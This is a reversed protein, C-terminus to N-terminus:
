KNHDNSANLCSLYVFIDRGMSRGRRRARFLAMFLARSKEKDRLTDRRPQIYRRGDAYVRLFPLKGHVDQAEGEGTEPLTEGATETETEAPPEDAALVRPCVLLLCLILLVAICRKM